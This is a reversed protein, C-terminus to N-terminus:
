DVLHIPCTALCFIRAEVVSRHSLFSLDPRELKHDKRADTANINFKQSIKVVTEHHSMIPMTDLSARVEDEQKVGASDVEAELQTKLDRARDLASRQRDIREEEASFDIEKSIIM